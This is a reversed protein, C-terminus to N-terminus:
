EEHNILQNVLDICRLYRQEYDPSDIQIYNINNKQLLSILLQQFDKRQKPNGLHRLGDAVWPTNNGLLIVLDFRYNNIMAQLFPHEKGEYKKCFAQTTVFDTDIFSVKNAHKIAFDIYQAHGLAIKDYDAFQLAREDGGLHSFVYDRGYEWASTTNFVNALKNVLTSKGSSEGGLIAVTRVFFPRVETPIYQWNKLPAKRIQSGSVPMFQRSPDILVTELAFLDKYMNVDQPESSYIWNPQIGKHQFLKKVRESWEQWGNPYAPIGDEELLEIHINKQYKFTQLLWRIRDNITPQRSMASQEFLQMDRKTDSCLIIFLEDVQSIARQILYIHGTHLPYFKGFIVGIKKSHDVAEIQLYQHLSQLKQASPNKIKDNILQSLYGKTMQCADAVTQLSLNKRKITKKLYSFSNM